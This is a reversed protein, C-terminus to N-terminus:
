KDMYYNQKEKEIVNIFDEDSPFSLKYKSAYIQDNDLPLSYKVVTENKNTCLLIGITKNEDDSKIKRDYDLVKTM